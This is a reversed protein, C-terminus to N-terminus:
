IAEEIQDLFDQLETAMRRADRPCLALGIRKSGKASIRVLGDALQYCAAEGEASIMRKIAMRGKSIQAATAIPLKSAGNLAPSQVGLLRDLREARTETLTAPMASMNAEPGYSGGIKPALDPRANSRECDLGELIAAAKPTNDAKGVARQSLQKGSHYARMSYWAQADRMGLQEAIEKGAKGDKQLALGRLYLKYSESQKM